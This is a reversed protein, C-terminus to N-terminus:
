DEDIDFYKLPQLIGRSMNGFPNRLKSSGFGINPKCGPLPMGM